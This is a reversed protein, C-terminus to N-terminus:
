TTGGKDRFKLTRRVLRRLIKRKRGRYKNCCYCHVGGKGTRYDLM